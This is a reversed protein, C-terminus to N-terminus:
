EAGFVQVVLLFEGQKGIAIGTEKYEPKLINEKHKESAMWGAVLNQVTKFRRGLNEGAYKYNYEEKEFWVWPNSLTEPNTHSWYGYEVMDELKDEAVRDLTYNRKLIALGVKFREQNVLNLVNDHNIIDSVVEGSEDPTKINLEVTKSIKIPINKKQKEIKQIPTETPNEQIPTLNTPIKKRDIIPVVIILLFLIIYLFIALIAPVQLKLHKM